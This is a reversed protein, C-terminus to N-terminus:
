GVRFVKGVSRAIDEPRGVRKLAHLNTLWAQQEPTNNVEQYM